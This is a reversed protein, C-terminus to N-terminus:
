DDYIQTLKRKNFPAKVVSPAAKRERVIKPYNYLRPKPQNYIKLKVGKGMLSEEIPGYFEAMLWNPWDVKFKHMDWKALVFDMTNPKDYRRLSNKYSVVVPDIMSVLYSVVVCAVGLKTASLYADALYVHGSVTDKSIVYFNEM